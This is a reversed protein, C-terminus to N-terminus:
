RIICSTKKYANNNKPSFFARHGGTDNTKKALISERIYHVMQDPEGAVMELHRDALDCKGRQRSGLIIGRPAPSVEELSVREDNRQCQRQGRDARQERLIQDGNGFHSATASM